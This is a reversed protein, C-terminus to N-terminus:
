KPTTSNIYFTKSTLRVVHRHDSLRVTPIPLPAEPHPDLSTIFGAGMQLEKVLYEPLETGERGATNIYNKLHSAYVEADAPSLNPSFKAVISEGGNFFETRTQAGLERRLLIDKGVWKNTEPANNRRCVRWQADGAPPLLVVGYQLLARNLNVEALIPPHQRGEGIDGGLREYDLLLERPTEYYIIESPATASFAMVQYIGTGTERM